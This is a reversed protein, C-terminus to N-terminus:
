TSKVKAGPRTDKHLWIGLLLLTNACLLVSSSVPTSPFVNWAYEIALILALKVAVPYPTKWALFPIQHAYWSYFQYHLSRAFIIGVLNSTFMVTAVYDGTIPAVGSVPRHPRRIGRALVSWAGGDARCWRFLGFLVLVLIHGALLAVAWRRSLFTEEDVMRWNVTWKYLFVRSLDFASNVYAWPDVALFPNALLTQVATITMMHRLTSLLGRRKFLIVLLGPLYLLVSMKVSLAGGFLFTGTDDLGLFISHLRKSLPLLLLVWNPVTRAKRYIACTLTLTAVYLAGYIHQALRINRGSDTIDHLITHIRLHGAPYVLPGTPGAIMSYNHQGKLFVETQVMYTEWDIETYPVFHIILETLLGDGIIVLVALTWFYTRDTLLAMALRILRRLSLGGGESPSSM